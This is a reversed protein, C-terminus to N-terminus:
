LITFIKSFNYLCKKDKKPATLAPIRFFGPFIYIVFPTILSLAFGMLTDKLLFFQTNRYVADFMSIYYWFFSLLIFSLIFYFVFKIKLKRVLKAGNKNINNTDEEQKFDVIADNSLGLLQVLKGIFISIFSSYVIIPLQYSADFEGKSEYVNHMTSDNFFLGNVAYNLSFGFIFLDIKIIKSNYDKNYFFTYLLEHKTRLLSIYYELFTRKDNKLALDYSLDNTEEETYDMMSELKKIDEKKPNNKAKKKNNGDTIINKNNININIINDKNFNIGNEKEKKVNRGKKKNEKEKKIEKKKRTKKININEDDKQNENNINILDNYFKNILYNNVESFKIKKKKNKKENKRKFEIKLIDDKKNKNEKSKGKEGKKGKMEKKVGKKSKFYM